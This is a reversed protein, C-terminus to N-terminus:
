SLSKKEEATMHYSCSTKLYFVLEETHCEGALALKPSCRVSSSESNKRLRQQLNGNYWLFTKRVMILWTDVVVQPQLSTVNLAPSVLTKSQCILM